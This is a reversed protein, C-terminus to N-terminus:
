FSFIGSFTLCFKIENIQRDIEWFQETSNLDPPSQGIWGAPSKSSGCSTTLSKHDTPVPTTKIGCREQDVAQLAPLVLPQLIDDRDSAVDCVMLSRGGYRYHKRVCADHFREGQLRFLTSTSEGTFSGVRTWSPHCRSWALSAAREPRRSRINSDHLRNRSTLNSVNVNSAARLEGRLVSTTATRNRLATLVICKTDTKRGPPPGPGDM